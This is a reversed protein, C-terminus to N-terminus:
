KTDYGTPESENVMDTGILQDNRKIHCVSYLKALLPIDKNLMSSGFTVVM